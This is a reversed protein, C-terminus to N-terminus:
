VKTLQLSGNNDFGLIYEKDIELNYDLKNLSTELQNLIFCTRCIDCKNMITLVIAHEFGCVDYKDGVKVKCLCNEIETKVLLGKCEKM